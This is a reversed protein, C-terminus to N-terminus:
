DIHQSRELRDLDPFRLSLRNTNTCFHGRYEPGCTNMTTARMGFRALIGVVPLGKASPSDLGGGRSAGLGSKARGVM